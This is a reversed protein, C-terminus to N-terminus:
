NQEAKMWIFRRPFHSTDSMRCVGSGGGPKRPRGAMAKVNSLCSPLGSLAEPKRAQAVERPPLASCEAAWRPRRQEAPTDPAPSWRPVVGLLQRWIRAQQRQNGSPLGGKWVAPPTGELSGKGRLNQDRPDSTLLGPRKIPPLCGPIRIMVIIRYQNWPRKNDHFGTDRLCLSEFQFGGGGASDGAPSTTQKMELLESAMLQPTAQSEANRVLGWTRM